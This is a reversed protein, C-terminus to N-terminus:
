IEIRRLSDGQNKKTYKIGYSTIHVHCHKSFEYGM